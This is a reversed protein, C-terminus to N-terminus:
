IRDFKFNFHREDKLLMKKVERFIEELKYYDKVPVFSYMTIREIQALEEILENMRDISRILAKRAMDDDVSEAIIRSTTIPTKLEHMINRMFLNKSHILQRIHKIAKDFSKAIKGIEDSGYDEIKINLDGQAFREIKDKLRKLPSVKKLLMIYIVVLLIFFITVAIFAIQIAKDGTRDILIYNYGVM